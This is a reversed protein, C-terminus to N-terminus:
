PLIELLDEGVLVTGRFGRAVDRAMAAVSEARGHEVSFHTLVVTRVGAREALAGLALPGTHHHELGLRALDADPRTCDHLLVDAGSALREVAESPATDGSVVVSQGEADVRYALSEMFPQTHPTRVASVRWTATEQVLGETVDIAHVNLRERRKGDRALYIRQAAEGESRARLDASFAGSPGFLAELVKSTGVPGFVALPRERGALWSSMAFYPLDVMHDFHHHTLFLPGVDLPRVNARLMQVTASPGCDFLLREDGIKILAASGARELRPTGGGGTGLLTLKM